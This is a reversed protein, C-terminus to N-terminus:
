IIFDLLDKEFRQINELFAKSHFCACKLLMMADDEARHANEPQCEFYREYIKTLKYSKSFTLKMPIVPRRGGSETSFLRSRKPKWVRPPPPAINDTKVPPTSENISQILALTCETKELAQTLLVDDEEHPELMNEFLDPSSARVPVSEEINIPANVEELERKLFAEM